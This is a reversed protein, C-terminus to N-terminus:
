SGFSMRLSDCQSTFFAKSVEAKAVIGDFGHFAGPVVHVECPVGAAQLRAAYDLDEDHFLDLTGVGLWAPPLGALDTRRAPAAIEPDAGGLYAQWGFRNSTANWLRQGPDNLHQGVSRDDIMPYVLLQFVPKVGDRDRALFALAAALGGGASAGGIAIRDADVAPLGALWQLATYCDELPAPYPHEPALRYDVSAVTIGLAQVFRRCLADDQAATGLVYGGGHIWLLAPTTTTADAPRYLRIGVGSELTLVEVGDNKPRQLGTLRRLVPLTRASILARPTFRAAKRLEPHIDTNAM